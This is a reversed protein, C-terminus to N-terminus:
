VFRRIAYIKGYDARRDHTIGYAKGKAEVIMGKGDYIAVHGDYCIIDGAQAEALSAVPKGEFRWYYSTRYSKNYVGNNKLVQWVFHSCDIGNTLSNGGWVYPNGVFQKAYNVM